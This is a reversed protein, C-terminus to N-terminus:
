KEVDMPLFYFFETESVSHSTLPTEDKLNCKPEDQIDNKKLIM